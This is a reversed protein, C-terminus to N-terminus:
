RQACWVHLASVLMVLLGAHFNSVRVGQEDLHAM